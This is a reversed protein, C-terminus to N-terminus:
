FAIVGQIAVVAIVDKITADTVIRETATGSVVRKIAAGTIVVQFAAIKFAVSIDEAGTMAFIGDCVVTVVVFLRVRQAKLTRLCLFCGKCTFAIVKDDLSIAAIVPYRQLVVEVAVVVAAVVELKLIALHTPFVDDFFGKVEGTCFVVVTNIAPVRIVGDMTTGTVVGEIAVTAIVGEM